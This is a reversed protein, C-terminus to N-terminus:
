PAPQGPVPPLVPRWGGLVWGPDCYNAILEADKVKDLRRSAPHRARTDVPKGAPDRSDFEWFRVQSADGDIPDWGIPAIGDLTAHILVAEAYPYNKGKNDPLRALVTQGGNRTRFSCDVFVNGHSAQTNRIWMFPGRSEIECDRFFAPGRGLISDGGGVLHVREFYASGNTQLADGSGTINVDSVIMREGNLLLGEAQGELTSAVSLNMLAIDHVHDLAFAARRSPFTGPLESTGVNGPHPNFVENNAYHVRVKGRDEGAITVDHKNRAYVIEEYDGNKVFITIRGAHQEPVFDLAGQVTDFDGSGDSAVTVERADTRPGHAKTGFRWAQKGAIGQFSGDAVSLVGPDIQVYYTKGYGLLNHHPTITATNGHVIVPHFHFGDTFGGIIDLQYNGSPAAVGPASPTGARTDANTRRPGAYDYPTALYPPYPGAARDLPGDPVALDLTDVLRDDSADYIRIKGARALTPTSAFRLVLHADPNVQTANSAPYHDVAAAGALAPLGALVAALITPRM